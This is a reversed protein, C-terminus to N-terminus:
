KQAQKVNRSLAEVFNHLTPHKNDERFFVGCKRTLIRTSLPKKVVAPNQSAASHSLFCAGMGQEVLHLAEGPAFADAVVNLEVGFGRYFEAIEAHLDPFPQRAVAIVPVHELDEPRVVPKISLPHLKPVCFVVPEELLLRTSIAPNRVPLFGVGAHLLGNAVRQEIERSLGSEDEITLNGANEVKIQALQTLLRRPLHTSHGILLQRERLKHAASVKDEALVAHELAFVAESYYAKGDVTMEIGHSTKRFLRAVLANETKALRKQIASPGVNLLEAARATDGTEALAIVTALGEMDVQPYRM